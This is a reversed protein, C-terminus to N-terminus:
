KLGDPVQMGSVSSSGGGGGIDICSSLSLSLFLACIIIINKIM